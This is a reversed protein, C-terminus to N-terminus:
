ERFQEIVVDILVVWDSDDLGKYVFTIETTETKLTYGGMSRAPRGIMRRYQQLEKYVTIEITNLLATTQLSLTL